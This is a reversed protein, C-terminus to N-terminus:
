SDSRFRDFFGGVDISPVETPIIDSPIETPIESPLVPVEETVTATMEVTNTVTEPTLPLRAAEDASSRWLFFLVVAALLALGFLIGFVTPLASRSKGESVPAPAPPQPAYGQQYGPQYGPPYGQQYGPQYGQPYPSQQYNFNPDNEGPFYQRPRQDAQGSSGPQGLYQTENDPDPNARGTPGLYRTDDDSNGPERQNM